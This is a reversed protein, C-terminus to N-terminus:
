VHARGIQTHTELIRIGPTIVPELQAWKEESHKYRDLNQAQQLRRIKHKVASVSAGIKRAIAQCSAGQKKYGMIQAEMAGTWIMLCCDSNYNEYSGM